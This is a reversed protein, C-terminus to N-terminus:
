SDPATAEVAATVIKELDHDIARTAPLAADETNEVFQTALDSIESTGDEGDSEVIPTVKAILDEQLALVDRYPGSVEAIMPEQALGDGYARAETLEQLWKEDADWVDTAVNSFAQVDIFLRNVGPRRDKAVPVDADVGVNLEEALAARAQDYADDPTDELERIRWLMWLRWPVSSKDAEDSQPSVFGEILAERYPDGIAPLPSTGDGEGALATALGDAVEVLQEGYGASVDEDMYYAALLMWASDTDDTFDKYGFDFRSWSGADEAAREHHAIDEQLWDLLFARVSPVLGRDEDAPVTKEVLEVEDGLAAAMAEAYARHTAIRAKKGEDKSMTLTDGATDAHEAHAADTREALQSADDIEDSLPDAIESTAYGRLETEILEAHEAVEQAATYAPTSEAGEVQKLEPAEDLVDELVDTDTELRQTAADAVEPAWASLDESYQEAAAIGEESEAPACGALALAGVAGATLLTLTRRM